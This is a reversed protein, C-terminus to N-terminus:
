PLLVNTQYHACYFRPPNVILGVVEHERYLNKTPTDETSGDLGQMLETNQKKIGTKCLGLVATHVTMQDTNQLKSKLRRKYFWCVIIGDCGKIM